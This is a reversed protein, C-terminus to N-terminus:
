QKLKTIVSKLAKTNQPHAYMKQQISGKLKEVAARTEPDKAAEEIQNVVIGGAAKLRRYMLGMITFAPPFVVGLAILGIVITAMGPGLLSFGTGEIEKGQYRALYRNQAAIQKQLELITSRLENYSTDAAKVLEEPTDAKIPTRPAGLSQSLGQAVPKLEEPKEIKRAILDAARRQSETTESSPATPPPVKAQFIRLAGATCGVCYLAFVICFLIATLKKM